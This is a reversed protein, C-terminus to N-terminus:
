CRTQYCYCCRIDAPTDTDTVAKKAELEDLVPLCWVRFVFAVHNSHGRNSTHVNFSVELRLLAPSLKLRLSFLAPLHFDERRKRKQTILWPYGEKALAVAPLSRIIRIISQPAYADRTNTTADERRRGKIRPPLGHLAPRASRGTAIGAGLRAREGFVGEIPTM